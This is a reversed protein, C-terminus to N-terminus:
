VAVAVLACGFAFSSYYIRRAMALEQPSAPPEKKSVSQQYAKNSSRVVIMLFFLSFFFPGYQFALDSLAELSAATANGSESSAAASLPSHLIVFAVMLTAVARFLIQM